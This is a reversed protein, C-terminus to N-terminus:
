LDAPTALIRPSQPWEDLIATWMQQVIHTSLSCEVSARPACSCLVGACHIPTGHNLWRLYDPLRDLPLQLRTALPAPRAMSSVTM